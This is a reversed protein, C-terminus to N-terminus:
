REGKREDKRHYADQWGQSSRQHNDPNGVKKSAAEVTTTMEEHQYHRGWIGTRSRKGDYKPAFRHVPKNQTRAPDHDSGTLNPEVTLTGEEAGPRSKSQSSM